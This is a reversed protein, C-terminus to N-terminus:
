QLVISAEDNNVYVQASDGNDLVVDKRVYFYTEYRDLVKFDEDTIDFVSGAVKDDKRSEKVVLYPISPHTTLTYGSLFTDQAKVVRGLIRFRTMEDLLTGYVFLKPMFLNYLFSLILTEEPFFVIKLFKNHVSKQTCSKTTHAHKIIGFLIAISPLRAQGQTLWFGM